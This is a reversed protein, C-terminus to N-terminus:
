SPNMCRKCLSKGTLLRSLKEQNKTIGLGCGECPVEGEAVPPKEPPSKAEKPIERTPPPAPAKRPEPARVAPAVGEARPQARIVPKAAKGEPRM